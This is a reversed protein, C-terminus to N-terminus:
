IYKAQTKKPFKALVLARSQAVRDQLEKATFVDLNEVLVWQKRAFHPAQTVGHRAALGEFEEVDCKICFGHTDLDVLVFIKGEIMFCLREWKMGETTGPLMLCYDRFSEIDM